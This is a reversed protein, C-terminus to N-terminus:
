ILKKSSELCSTFLTAKNCLTDRFSLAAKASLFIEHCVKFFILTKKKKETVKFDVLLLILYM